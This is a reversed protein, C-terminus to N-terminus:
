KFLVKKIYSKSENNIKVIFLGKLDLDKLIISEKQFKKQFVVRGNLDLISVSTPQNTGLDLNLEDEVPNPYVKIELDNLNEIENAIMGKSAEIRGSRNVKRWTRVWDVTMVQDPLSSVTPKVPVKTRISNDDPCQVQNVYPDRMGLSLAVNYSQQKWYTNRKRSIEVGNIYWIIINNDIYAGYINFESSNSVSNRTKLSPTNIPRFFKPEGGVIRKVHLNHFTENKSRGQTLEVVDIENYLVGEKPTKNSPNSFLWLAPSYGPFSKVGKIKAEVFVANENQINIVNKSKLLGSRFYLTGSVRKNTCNNDYKATFGNKFYKAKILAEKGNHNINRNDWKWVSSQKPKKQWISGIQGGSRNFEDSLNNIKKWNLESSPRGIPRNQSYVQSVIISLLFVILRNKIKTKVKM